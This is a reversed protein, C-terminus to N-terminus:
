KVKIKVTKTVKNYNSNGKFTVTAKYTGKKKLNKIKFIAKGKSNTKATYTKGKVKLYLTVKKLAKNKDTKLIATYKKTKQKVKFSAKKAVLKPTAKITKSTDSSSQSGSSSSGSSSQSNPDVVYIDFGNVQIGREDVDLCYEKDGTTYSKCNSIIGHEAAMSRYVVDKYGHENINYKFICSDLNGYDGGFVIATNQNENFECNSINVYKSGVWKNDIYSCEIAIAGGSQYIVANKDFKSDTVQLYNTLSYIAGGFTEAQNNNFYCNIIFWDQDNHLPLCIAGGNDSAFNNKFICNNIITPSSISYSYAIVYEGFIAGGYKAKNNDFECNFINLNIGRGLVTDAYIAGGEGDSYGNKFKINKLTINHPKYIKLIRSKSLGNLAHGQGDICIDNKSDIAIGNIDFGEDYTYDNELTITAGSAANNIKNQLATFTGDDKESIINQQSSSVIEDTVDESLEIEDSPNEQLVGEDTLNDAASVSSITLVALLM